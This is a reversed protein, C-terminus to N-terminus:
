KIVMKVNPSHTAFVLSEYCLYFEVLDGVKLPIKCDEVDVIWHDSSAGVVQIHDNVPILSATSPVDVRGLALLARKRMGRDVYTGVHGFADFTLEGVPYSPKVKLEIVEAKLIFVDQNMFSMDYGYLDVLDKALLITEGLRVNNIRAPMKGNMVLPFSTTAGGSIMELPRGIKSEVAEAHLILENMKEPTAAVSGYCGLNTGVGFLTLGDMKNEVLDAAELLEKEDWFGERLDGLDVMLVVKHLKGRYLAERNLAELVAVESNLSIETLRVVDEVESLMPVRILMWPKSRGRGVAREIQELRSTGIYDCESEEYEKICAPIGSVGKIVGVVSINKEHCITVTEDINQRLKKLDIEVRPYTNM